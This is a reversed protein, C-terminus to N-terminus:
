DYISILGEKILIKQGDNSLVYDVFTKSDEQLREKSLFIFPRIVKYKKNKINKLNPEIGDVSIAKVNSDVLGLSIYGIAYPDTAIVEKVSGNSDQVMIGDDIDESGMVLEEFSGRTGSGEERSVADIRRNVWGLDKWNKIKGNFIDRVQKLSLDKIPNQPHAVIIVGDYCIVIENLVMEAEKLQRSSMGINVTNNMCAQIGATSGGGQVDIIFEPHDIMFHEALKETFPMVSTSGAITVTQKKSSSNHSINCCCCSFITLILLMFVRTIKPM